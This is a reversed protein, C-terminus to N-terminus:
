RTRRGRRTSRLVVATAAVGVLVLGTVPRSAGPGDAYVDVSAFHAGGADGGDVAGPVFAPGHAATVAPTDPAAPPAHVATVARAAPALPPAAPSVAMLGAGGAAHAAPVLVAAVAAVGACLAVNRSGM